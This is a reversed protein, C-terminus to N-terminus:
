VEGMKEIMRGRTCVIGEMYGAEYAEKMNREQEISDPETSVGPERGYHNLFWVIFANPDPTYSM